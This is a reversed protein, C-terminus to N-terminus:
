ATKGSKKASPALRVVRRQLNGLSLMLTGVLLLAMPEPLAITNGVNTVLSYLLNMTTM